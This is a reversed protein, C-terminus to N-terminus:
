KVGWFRQMQVLVSTDALKEKALQLWNHIKYPAASGSNKVPTAPQLVFPIKPSVESITKIAKLLEDDKTKDTLVVKAFVKGKALKLFGKHEDWYEAKMASPLKIDMAVVDVWKNVMSYMEPMTGNTELYVRLDLKKIEPLLKILFHPYLLPEGGTISVTKPISGDGGSLRKSAYEKVRFIIKKLSLYQQNEKLSQNQPTDCCDCRLNCGAFRVFIQPQGMYIGEGQYSAFVESVPAKLSTEKSAAVKKAQKLKTRKM